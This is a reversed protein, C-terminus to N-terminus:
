IICKHNLREKLSTIDSKLNDIDKQNQINRSDLKKNEDKLYKITAEKELNAVMLDKQKLAFFILLFSLAALFIAQPLVQKM